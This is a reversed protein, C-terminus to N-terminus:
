YTTDADADQDGRADAALERLRVLYSGNAQYQLHCFRHEQCVNNLFVAFVVVLPSDESAGRLRSDDKGGGRGGSM